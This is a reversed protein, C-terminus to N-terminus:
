PRIIQFHHPLSGRALIVSTFAKAFSLLWSLMSLEMEMDKIRRLNTLFHWKLSFVVYRVSSGLGLPDGESDGGGIPSLLAGALSGELDHDVM